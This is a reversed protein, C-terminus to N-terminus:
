ANQVIQFFEEPDLSAGGPLVGAIHDMATFSHVNESTVSGGYIVTAQPVCQQIQSCMNDANEPSDPTGSGIAFLPEYAILMSRDKTIEGLQQAQAVESVCVIPTLGYSFAKQIKEKVVEDTDGFHQRRESHGIIVHTAFEQLQKGNVAGTYKGEDFPSIDQAGISIPLGYQKSASKVLSLLTFPVCIVIEKDVLQVLAEKHQGMSEFWSTVEPTIKFSKWNGIISLKKM